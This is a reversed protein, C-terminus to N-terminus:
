VFLQCCHQNFPTHGCLGAECSTFWAFGAQEERPLAEDLRLYAFRYTTPRRAHSSVRFPESRFCTMGYTPRLGVGAQLRISRQHHLATLGTRPVCGLAVPLISPLPPFDVNDSSEISYGALRFTHPANYKQDQFPDSAVPDAHRPPKRYSL